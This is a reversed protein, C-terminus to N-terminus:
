GSCWFFLKHSGPEATETSPTSPHPSALDALRERPQKEESAESEQGPQAEVGSGRREALVKKYHELAMTLLHGARIEMADRIRYKATETKGIQSHARHM